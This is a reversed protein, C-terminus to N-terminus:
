VPFVMARKRPPMRTHKFLKGVLSAADKNECLLLRALQFLGVHAGLVQEQAQNAFALADGRASQMLEVDGVVLDDTLDLFDGVLVGRGGRPVDRKGRAGLAHELTGQALRQLKALVVDRGLM